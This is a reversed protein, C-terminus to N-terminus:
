PRAGLLRPLVTRLRVLGLRLRTKITGLPEALRQAIEAQSLGQYYAMEIALRQEAPLTNLATVVARSQESQLATMEPTYSPTSLSHTTEYAARTAEQRQRVRLRDLARSRALTIIWGEVSGRGADYSAAGDWVQWFTEALVEEAEASDDMIRVILTYILPSLRDYLLRLAQQDREQIRRVLTSRENDVRKV